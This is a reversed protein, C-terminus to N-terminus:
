ERVGRETPSGDQGSAPPDFFADAYRVPGGQALAGPAFELAMFASGSFPADLAEALRASFGFRGYYDPNGLVVVADVRLGRCRDLGTRILLSGVGQGQRDPRVAVPALAAGALAGSSSAGGSASRM